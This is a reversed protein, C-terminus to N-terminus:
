ITIPLTSAWVISPLHQHQTWAGLWPWSHTMCLVGSGGQVLVILNNARDMVLSWEVMVRGSMFVHAKAAVFPWCLVTGADWQVLM